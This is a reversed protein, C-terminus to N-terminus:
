DHRIVIVDHPKSVAHKSSNWSNIVIDLEPKRYFHEYCYLQKGSAVNPLSEGSLVRSFSYNQWKGTSLRAAQFVHLVEPWALLTNSFLRM